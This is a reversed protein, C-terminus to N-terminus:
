SAHSRVHVSLISKLYIFAGVSMGVSAINPIVFWYSSFQTEGFAYRVSFFSASLAWFSFFIAIGMITSRKTKTWAFWTLFSSPISVAVSIALIVSRVEPGTMLKLVADM